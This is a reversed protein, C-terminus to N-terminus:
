ETLVYDQTEGPGGVDQGFVLPLGSLSIVDGPKLAQQRIREGNVWTGGTSDLDFVLYRGGSARLQAHLRSVRKDDIVLHNDERRGINVVAKNLQYVQTGNVILFANEPIAELAEALKVEHSVTSPLDEQSNEALVQFEGPKSAEQAEIRIVLPGDLVLGAERCLERISGRIHELLIADGEIESALDPHVQITYLNPAVLEGDVGPLVGDRMAGALQSALDSSAKPDSFLRATSGEVLKQLHTELQSLRMSLPNM